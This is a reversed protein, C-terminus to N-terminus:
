ESQPQVGPENKVEPNKEEVGIEVAPQPKPQVFVKGTSYVQTWDANVKDIEVGNRLLVESQKHELQLSWFQMEMLRAKREGAYYILESLENDMLSYTKVDSKPEKNKKSM